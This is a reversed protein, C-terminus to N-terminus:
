MGGHGVSCVGDDAGVRGYDNDGNNHREDDGRYTKDCHKRVLSSSLALKNGRRKGVHNSIGTLIEKTRAPM